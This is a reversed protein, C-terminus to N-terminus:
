FDSVKKLQERQKVEFRPTLLTSAAHPRLVLCALRLDEPRRLSASVAQMDEKM